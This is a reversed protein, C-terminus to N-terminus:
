STFRGVILLAIYVHAFGSLQARNFKEGDVTGHDFIFYVCSRKFTVPEVSNLILVKLVM